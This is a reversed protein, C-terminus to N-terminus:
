GNQAFILIRNNAPMHILDHFGLGLTAARARIDDVDRLGWDPNDARLRDDFAANGDGTHVGGERFPGYFALLGCPALTAAAGKLIGSLVAPPAIHIVNLSLILSLPGLDAVDAAWDSAADIARAPAVGRKFHASWADISTRHAADPDSPTWRLGAFATAFDQVHQGTGSGIELAPGCVGKLVPALAASIPGVNREYVGFSMRGDAETWVAGPLFRATHRTTPEVPM